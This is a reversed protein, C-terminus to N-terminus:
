ILRVAALDRLHVQGILMCIVVYGAFKPWIQGGTDKIPNYIFALQYCWVRLKTSACIDAYAYCMCVYYWSRLKTGACSDVYAYCM